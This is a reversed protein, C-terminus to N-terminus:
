EFRKAVEKLLKNVPLHQPCAKECQGCEICKGAKNEEKFMNGYFIWQPSFFNDKYQRDTNYLAFCKPINIQKPCGKLCYGCGTCLISDTENIIDYENENFPTFDFMYSMNDKLQEINSMGSLVTFVNKQSAAFRIAWSAVSMNSYYNKLMTEAKKPLSALTGGKIPEM